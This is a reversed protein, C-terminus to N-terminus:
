GVKTVRVDGILTSAVLVVRKDTDAFNPTQVTMQNFLGGRKENLVAVDGILSSSVVQVGVGFDGPVFVKLDGIFKSVYVRTEGLPIQAKTLDLTTDGIFHSISMPRLEWYDGGFHIDGIFRSCNGDQQGHWGHWSHWHRHWGHRGHRHRYRDPREWGSDYAPRERLPPASPGGGDGAQPTPPPPPFGAAEPRGGDDGFPGEPPAPPPGPSVPPPPPIFAKWREDRDWGNRPRGGGRAIMNLGGVILAIPVAWKFFDQPQVDFWGLNRGLFFLGVAVILANWWSGRRHQLLLGQLGILVIFAPWFDGILEGPSVTIAGAQYLLFVVGVGILVVGWFLRHWITQRM